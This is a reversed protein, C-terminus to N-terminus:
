NKKSKRGKKKIAKVVFIILFVLAFVIGLGIAIVLTWNISPVEPTFYGMLPMLDSEARAKPLFIKSFFSIVLLFSSALLSKFKM